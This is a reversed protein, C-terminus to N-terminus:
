TTKRYKVAVIVVGTFLIINVISFTKLVMNDSMIGSPLMLLSCVWVGWVWAMSLDASSKRRAINIILPINWLPLCVSAALGIQDFVTM